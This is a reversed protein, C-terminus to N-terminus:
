SQIHQEMQKVVDRIELLRKESFPEGTADSLRRSLQALTMAPGAMPCIGSLELLEAVINESHRTDLSNAMEEQLVPHNPGKEGAVRIRLVGNEQERFHIYAQRCLTRVLVRSRWSDDKLLFKREIECSM